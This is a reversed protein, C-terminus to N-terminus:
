IDKSKITHERNIAPNGCPELGGGSVITLGALPLIVRVVAVTGGRFWTDGLLLMVEMLPLVEAAEAMFAVRCDLKAAARRLSALCAVSRGPSYM